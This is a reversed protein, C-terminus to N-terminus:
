SPGEATNTSLEEIRLEYNATSGKKRDKRRIRDQEAENWNSGVGYIFDLGSAQYTRDHDRALFTLNSLVTRASELSQILLETSGGRFMFIDQAYNYCDLGVHKFAEVMARLVLNGVARGFKDRISNFDDTDCVAVASAPERDQVEEFARSNPIGVIEEFLLAVRMEEPSLDSARKGPPHVDGIWFPRQYLADLALQADHDHLRAAKRLWVAALGCDQSVGQGQRYALAIAKQIETNHPSLEIAKGFCDFAQNFQKQERYELGRKFWQSADDMSQLDAYGRATLARVEMRTLRGSEVRSLSKMDNETM